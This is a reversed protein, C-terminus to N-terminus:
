PLARPRHADRRCYCRERRGHHIDQNATNPPKTYHLLPYICDFACSRHYKLAAEIHSSVLPSLKSPPSQQSRGQNRPLQRRQDRCIMAVALVLGGGGVLSRRGRVDISCGVHARLMKLGDGSRTNREKGDGQTSRRTWTQMVRHWRSM